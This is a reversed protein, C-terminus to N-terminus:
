PAQQQQERRHSRVDALLQPLPQAFRRGDVQLAPRREVRLEHGLALDEDDDLDVALHAVPLRDGGSPALRLQFRQRARVLSHLRRQVARPDRTYMHDRVLQHVDDGLLLWLTVSTRSAPSQSWASTPCSPLTLRMPMKRFMLTDPRGACCGRIYRTQMRASSAPGCRTVTCSRRGSPPETM